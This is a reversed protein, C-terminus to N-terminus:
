LGHQLSLYYPVHSKLGPQVRLGQYDFHAFSEPIYYKQVASIM